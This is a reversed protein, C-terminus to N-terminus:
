PQVSSADSQSLFPMESPVVNSKLTVSPSETSHMNSFVFSGASAVRLIVFFAVFASPENVKKMSLDGLPKLIVEIGFVAIL